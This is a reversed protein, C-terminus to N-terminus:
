NPATTTGFRFAEKFVSVSGETYTYVERRKKLIIELSTCQVVTQLRNEPNVLILVYSEFHLNIIKVDEFMVFWRLGFGM